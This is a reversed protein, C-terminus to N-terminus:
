LSALLTGQNTKATYIDRWRESVKWVELRVAGNAECPNEKKCLHHCLDTKVLIMFCDNSDM